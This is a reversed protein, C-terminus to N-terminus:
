EKRVPVFVEGDGRWVRMQAIHGAEINQLERAAEAASSVAKSNVSLIVDGQRLLAASPGDPDVDSVV